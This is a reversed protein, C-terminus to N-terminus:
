GQGAGIVRIENVVDAVGPVSRATREAMDRAAASTVFGRLTVVGYNVHVEVNALNVERNIALLDKIDRALDADIREAPLPQAGPNQKAAM